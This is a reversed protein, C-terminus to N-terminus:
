EEQQWYFYESVDASTKKAPDSLLSGKVEGVGYDNGIMGFSSITGARVKHMAFHLYKGSRAENQGRIAMEYFKGSTVAGEVHGLSNRTYTVDINPAGLTPAPISSGTPIYLMGRDFVYDTGSVYATGGGHPVVTTIAGAIYQLPLWGGAYAIASEASVTGSAIATAKGRTVRAFNEKSFDTFSYTFGWSTVRSVGNREGGGPNRHDPLSLDTAQPDLKAESCNGVEVLPTLSGWERILIIGSGVFSYDPADM